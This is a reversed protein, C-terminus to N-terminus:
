HYTRGLAEEYEPLWRRPVRRVKMLTKRGHKTTISIEHYMRGDDDIRRPSFYISKTSSWGGRCSKGQWFSYYYISNPFHNHVYKKVSDSMGKVVVFRDQMYVFYIAFPQASGWEKDKTHQFKGLEIVERRM